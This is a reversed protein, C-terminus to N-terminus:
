LTGRLSYLPRLLWQYIPREDLLIDAQLTMGAQLPMDRGYANLSQQSLSSTVRYVPWELPIPTEVEHPALITRAVHEIRGEQTGFREYPFADYRIRVPLGAEVFGIARTPVLLEIQLKGGEPLLALLPRQPDVRQGPNVQLSTVVGASPAELSFAREGQHQLKQQALRGIEARLQDITERTDSDLSSLEFRADALRAQESIHSQRLQEQRQREDLFAQYRAQYDDESILGEQHLPHLAQFARKVLMLREDQLAIQRELQALQQELGQIVSNLYTERAEQRQLHRSIRDNLQQKQDDLLSIMAASFTLGDALMRETRVRMLVQGADVHQGAEVLLETVTGPQPAHIRVLGASPVLYGPVTEKRTYTGLMLFLILCLLAISILATMLRLSLPQTLIVEGWLRERQYQLAEKRFLSDTM